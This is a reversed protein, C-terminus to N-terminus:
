KSVTIALKAASETAAASVSVPVKWVVSGAKCVGESGEQCYYYAVTVELQEMGEGGVPLEVDFTTAPTEVRQLSGLAQRDIPGTLVPPRMSSM